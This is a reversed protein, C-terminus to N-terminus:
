SMAASFNMCIDQPKPFCMMQASALHATTSTWVWLIMLSFVESIMSDMWAGSLRQRLLVVNENWYFSTSDRWSFNNFVHQVRFHQSTKREMKWTLAWPSGHAGVQPVTSRRPKKMGAAVRSGGTWVLIDGPAPHWRCSPPITGVPMTWAGAGVAPARPARGARSRALNTIYFLTFTCVLVRFMFLSNTQKSLLRAPASHLQIFLFEPQCINPLQLFVQLVSGLWSEAPM